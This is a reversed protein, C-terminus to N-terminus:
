PDERCRRGLEKSFSVSLPSDRYEGYPVIRGYGLAEYLAIAEPQALGTELWIREYGARTAAVELEAMLLRAVGTGRAAPVVYLRKVEATRPPAEPCPRFGGCGVAEGGREAVLFLGEPPTFPGAPLAEDEDCPPPGGYREAMDSWQEFVLRRAVLDEFSAARVATIAGM